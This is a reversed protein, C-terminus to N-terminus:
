LDLVGVEHVLKPLQIRSDHAHDSWDGLWIFRGGLASTRMRYARWTRGTGASMRPPFGIAANANVGTHPQDAQSIHAACYKSGIMLPEQNRSRRPTHDTSSGSKSTAHNSEPTAGL